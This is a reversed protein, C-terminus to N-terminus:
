SGAISKLINLLGVLARQTAVPESALVGAVYPDIREVHIEDDTPTPTLFGAYSFLEEETFGLPHAIRHLIVASPFCEGREIRGLHSSSIGSLTALKALTLGQVMRQQKILEGLKGSRALWDGKNTVIYRRVGGHPVILLGKTSLCRRKNRV